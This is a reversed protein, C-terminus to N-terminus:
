RALHISQKQALFDGFEQEKSELFCDTCPCHLFAESMQKPIETSTGPVLALSKDVGTPKRSCENIPNLMEAWVQMMHSTQSLLESHFPEVWVHWSSFEADQKTGTLNHLSSNNTSCQLDLLEM